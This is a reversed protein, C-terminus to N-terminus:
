FEPKVGNKEVTASNLFVHGGEDTAVSAFVALGPSVDAKKGPIVAVIPTSPSVDVIATGTCGPQGPMARGECKGDVMKSGHYTVSLQWNGAGPMVTGNTMSGALMPAAQSTTVSGNTMSGMGTSSLRSSVPHHDWQYQGEGVVLPLIHVEEARLRGNVGPVATIGVFDTPKIQNFTRKEVFGYQTKPTIQAAVTAGADTRITLTTADISEVMGRVISPKLMPAPPADAAMAVAASACLLAAAFKLRM